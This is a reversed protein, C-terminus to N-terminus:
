PSIPKSGIPGDIPLAVQTSQWMGSVLVSRILWLKLTMIGPSASAQAVSVRLGPSEQVGQWWVMVRGVRWPSMSPQCFSNLALRAESFAAMVAASPVGAPIVSRPLARSACALVFTINKSCSPLWPTWLKRYARAPKAALIFSTCDASVVGDDVVVVVPEVVVVVDPVVVVVVVPEVVVVVDPVVVVVLGVGGGSVGRNLSTGTVWGNKM